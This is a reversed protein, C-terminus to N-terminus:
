TVQVTTRHATEQVKLHEDEQQGALTTPYMAYTYAATPTVRSTM